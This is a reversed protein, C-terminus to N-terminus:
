KNLRPVNRFRNILKYVQYESLNYYEGFREVSLFNNVYDLYVKEWYDRNKSVNYFDKSNMIYEGGM